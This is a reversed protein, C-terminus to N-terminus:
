AASRSQGARRQDSHGRVPGHASAGEELAAALPPRSFWGFLYIVGGLLSVSTSVTFWLVALTVALASDVNLPALLLATAGERVGMGNVSIPLMALLSVVPVLIWYFADPVPIDVARGILWVLLVNAVQVVVSLCTPWIQHQWPPLTGVAALLRQLKRGKGASGPKDDKRRALWALLPLTLVMGVLGAGACVWIWTILWGPLELPSFAVGLCALVLLVMLGNIREHMVSVFAPLRWGPRHDLYWARIVDGGVTTPLLLNFYMGILYLGIMQWWRRHLGQLRALYQWRLASVAQTLLLVGVAALWLELRLRAFAQGVQSWNVQWAVWTLLVGSVLVRLCRNM